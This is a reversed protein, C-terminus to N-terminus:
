CDLQAVISEAVQEIFARPQQDAAILQWSIQGCGFAGVAQSAEPLTLILDVEDSLPHVESAFPPTMVPWDAAAVLRFSTGTPGTVIYIFAEDESAEPEASTAGARLARERVWEASLDERLDGDGVRPDGLGEALRPISEVINLAVDRPVDGGVRIHVPAEPADQVGVVWTVGERGVTARRGNITASVGVVPQLASGSAITVSTAPSCWRITRAQALPSYLCLGSGEPLLSPTLSLLEDDNVRGLSPFAQPTEVLQGFVEAPDGSAPAPARAAIRRSDVVALIRTPAEAPEDDESTAYGLVSHGSGLVVQQYDAGSMADAFHPPVTEAGNPVSAAEYLVERGGGGLRLAVLGLDSVEVASACVATEAAGVHVPVRDVVASPEVEVVRGLGETVGLSGDPDLDSAFLEVPELCRELADLSLVEGPTAFRTRDVPALVVTASNSSPAEDAPAVVTVDRARGDDRLAVTAAVSILLVAAASLGVLRRGGSRRNRAALTSIPPTPPVEIDKL